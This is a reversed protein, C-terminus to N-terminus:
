DERLTWEGTQDELKDGSENNEVSNIPAYQFRSYNGTNEILRTLQVSTMRGHDNLILADGVKYFLSPTLISAPQQIAKIEPLSLCSYEQKKSARGKMLKSLLDLLRQAAHPSVIIRHLLKVDVDAQGQDWTENLGFNLVV